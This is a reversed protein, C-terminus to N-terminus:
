VMTKYFRIQFQGGGEEANQARIVANERSLIMQALALGIGFSDRGANEGRYFREFLHPLDAKPIGSGSDTIRLETYLPNEECCITLRGKDPTYELGNKIVNQVAELTWAYDGTFEKGETGSILCEKGHIEMALEFPSVAEAVFGQMQIREKKLSITGTELKSMKLLATMLWEMKALLGEAERLLRRRTEIDLEPSKLRELLINLSTLPTRVQHSIDALADALSTKDKKLLAAQEKLRITMKSIEDRLIELDGERFHEFEPVDIGHLLEDIQAALRRMECYRRNMELLHQICWFISCFFAAFAANRGGLIRAAVILVITGAAYRIIQGTFERNRFIWM